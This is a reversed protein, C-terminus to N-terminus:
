FGELRVRSLNKPISTDVEESVNLDARGFDLAIRRGQEHWLVSAKKPLTFGCLDQFETFKISVLPTTGSYFVQSVIRGDGFQLERNLGDETTMISLGHTGNIIAAKEPPIPDVCLLGLVVCPYMEERLRTNQIEKRNCYYASNADFSRSWFWFESPGSALILEDRGMTKQTLRMGKDKVYIISAEVPGQGIQSIRINKIGSVMSNFEELEQLLEAHNYEHSKERTKSASVIVILFLLFLCILYRM